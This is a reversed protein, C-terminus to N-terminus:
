LQNRIEKLAEVLNFLSFMLLFTRAIVVGDIALSYGNFTLVSPNFFCYLSIGAVLCRAVLLEVRKLM